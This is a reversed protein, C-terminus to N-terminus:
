ITMLSSLFEIGTDITSTPKQSNCVSGRKFILRGHSKGNKELNMFSYKFNSISIITESNITSDMIIPIALLRIFEIPTLIRFLHARQTQTETPSANKTWWISQAARGKQVKAMINKRQQSRKSVSYVHSAILAILWLAKAKNGRNRFLLVPSSHGAWRFIISSRSQSLAFFKLLRWASTASSPPPM